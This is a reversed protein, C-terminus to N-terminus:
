LDYRPCNKCTMYGFWCHWLVSSFLNTKCILSLDWWCWEVMNCYYLELCGGRRVAYPDWHSLGFRSSRYSSRMYTHQQSHVCLGTSLLESLIGMRGEGVTWSCRLWCCHVSQWGDEADHLVHLLLQKVVLFRCKTTQQACEHHPRQMSEVVTHSSECQTFEIQRAYNTNVIYPVFPKWRVDYRYAMKLWIIIIIWTNHIATVFCVPYIFWSFILICM